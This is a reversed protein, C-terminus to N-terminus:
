NKAQQTTDIQALAEIKGPQPSVKGGPRARQIGNVIVRDDKTLGARIVRLGDVLPGPTVTKPVVTGDEAVTMVIRRAQDALIAADPVLLADANGAWLRMRAFVGPTLFMDKNEFVARGRITGSRPNVVNDVFDMRGKHKWTTEDALRVEVPNSAERSSPRSGNSAQRAYKLYDAESADFVFNIPDLSVITTLLTTGSSGGTILNGADVRKDSIRGSVPARVETWEVNLEANRLNAQASAVQAVAARLTSQRTDFERQTLTRNRILPEAREVDAEALSQSAQAREVDARAVDRAIEYPRPDITFLKDGKAVFQGDTFHIQDLFGSVRARVEVSESAEFRGTYEDWETINRQLPTSVMVPPPPQNPAQAFAAPFQLGVAIPVVWFALNLLSSRLSARVSAGSFPNATM